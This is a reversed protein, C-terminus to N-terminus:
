AREHFVGQSLLLHLIPLATRVLGLIILIDGPSIVWEGPIWNPLPLVDSLPWLITDERLLLKDKSCMLRQNLVSEGAKDEPASELVFGPRVPMWGGNLLIVILNLTLGLSLWGFGPIRRNRFAFCFLIVQSASFLLAAFQDPILAQKNPCTLVLVQLLVALVPLCLWHFTNRVSIWVAHFEQRILVWIKNM